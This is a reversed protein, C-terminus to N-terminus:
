TTACLGHAAVSPALDAAELRAAASRIREDVHAATARPMRDTGAETAARLRTAAEAARALVALCEARLRGAPSGDVLSGTSALWEWRLRECTSRRVHVDEGLGLASAVFRVTSAVGRLEEALDAALTAIPADKGHRALVALGVVCAESTTAVRSLLDGLDAAPRAARTRSAPRVRASSRRSKARLPM